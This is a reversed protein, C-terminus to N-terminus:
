AKKASRALSQRYADVPVELFQHMLISVVLTGLVVQWGIVDGGNLSRLVFCVPWHTLYVPYSLNGIFRDFWSTRTLEFAGPILVCLLGIMLWLSGKGGEFDMIAALLLFVTLLLARVQNNPIFREVCVRHRWLLMGAAFCWFQCPLFRGNDVWHELSGSVHLLLSSAGLLAIWRDRMRALFPAMLYFWIELSISWAPTITLLEGGWRGGAVAAAKPALHWGEELTWALNTLVDLGVLSINCVMVMMGKVWGLSEYGSVWKQPPIVGHNWAHWAVWVWASSFILLYTPYLRLFRNLYFIKTGRASDYKAGLIMQIYFGSIVFFCSVAFEPPLLRLGLIPASHGIVVSLALLLRVTGM